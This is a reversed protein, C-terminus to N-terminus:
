DHGTEKLAARAIDRTAKETYTLGGTLRDVRAAIKELAKQLRDREETLSVCADHYEHWLADLLKVSELLKDREAEANIRLSEVEHLRAVVKGVALMARECSERLADIEDAAEHELSKDLGYPRGLHDFVRVHEPRNRLREVIDTM